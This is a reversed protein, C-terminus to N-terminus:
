GSVAAFISQEYLAPLNAIPPADDDDGGGGSGGSGGSDGSGGSGGSGGGASVANQQYETAIGVVYEAPNFV